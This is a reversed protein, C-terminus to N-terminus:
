KKIKTAESILQQNKVKILVLIPNDNKDVSKTQNLWAPSAKDAIWDLEEILDPPSIESVMYDSSSTFIMNTFRQHGVLDDYIFPANFGKLEKTKRDQMYIASYEEGYYHKQFIFMWSDFPILYPMEYPRVTKEWKNFDGESFEIQKDYPLLKDKMDLIFAPKKGKEGIHWITDSMYNNFLLGSSTELLYNMYREMHVYRYRGITVNHEVAITDAANIVENHIYVKGEMIQYWAFKGEDTRNFFVPQGKMQIEECFTGDMTYKMLSRKRSSSMYITDQYVDFNFILQHEGPGNGKKGIQRIFKGDRDFMLLRNVDSVLFKSNDLWVQSIRKLFSKDNTELPVYIVSDAFYSVKLTDEVSDPLHIFEVDDVKKTPEVKDTEPTNSFTCGTYWLCIASILLTPNPRM